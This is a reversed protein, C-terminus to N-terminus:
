THMQVYSHIEFGEQSSFQVRHKGGSLMNVSQLVTCKDYVHAICVCEIVYVRVCACVCVCM